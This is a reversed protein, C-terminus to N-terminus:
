GKNRVCHAVLVCGADACVLAHSLPFTELLAFTFRLNKKCDQLKCILFFFDSHKLPLVGVADWGQYFPFHFACRTKCIFTPNHKTM